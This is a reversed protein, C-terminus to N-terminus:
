ELRIRERNKEVVSPGVGKVQELDEATFFPGFEERYRVIAEARKLGVGTLVKALTEADASNINVTQAQSAMAMDDAQASSIALLPAFAMFATLLLGKFVATFHSNGFM